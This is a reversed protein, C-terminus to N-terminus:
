TSIEMLVFLCAILKEIGHFIVSQCPRSFRCIQGAIFLVRTPHWKWNSREQARPTLDSQGGCKFIFRITDDLLPLLKMSEGFLACNKALGSIKQTQKLFCGLQFSPRAHYNTVILEYWITEEVNGWQTLNFWSM